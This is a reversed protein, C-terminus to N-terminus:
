WGDSGRGRWQEDCRSKVRGMDLGFAGDFLTVCAAISGDINGWVLSLRGMLVLREPGKGGHGDLGIGDMGGVHGVAGAVLFLHGALVAHM